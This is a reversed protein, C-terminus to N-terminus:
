NGNDAGVKEYLRDILRENMRYFAYRAIEDDFKKDCVSFVRSVRAANLIITRLRHIEQEQKKCKKQLRKKTMESCRREFVSDKKLGKLARKKKNEKTTIMIKVVTLETVARTLGNATDKAGSKIVKKETQTAIKM